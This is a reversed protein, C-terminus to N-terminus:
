ALLTDDRCGGAKCTFSAFNLGYDSPGYAPAIEPKGTLGCTVKSENLGLSDISEVLGV